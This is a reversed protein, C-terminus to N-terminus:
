GGSTWSQRRFLVHKFDDEYCYITYKATLVLNQRHLPPGPFSLFPHSKDIFYRHENMVYLLPCFTRSQDRKCVNMFVPGVRIQLYACFYFFTSPSTSKSLRSASRRGKRERALGSSVQGILSKSWINNQGRNQEM